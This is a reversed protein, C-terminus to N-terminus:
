SAKRASRSSKAAAALQYINNEVEQKTAVIAREVEEQASVVPKSKARVFLALLLSVTGYVVVIQVDTWDVLAFAVLLTIIQKVAEALVGPEKDLINKLSYM